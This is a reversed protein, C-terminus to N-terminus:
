PLHIEHLLDEGCDACTDLPKGAMTGAAHMHPMSGKLHVYASQLADEAAQNGNRAGALISEFFDVARDIMLDNFRDKPDIMM